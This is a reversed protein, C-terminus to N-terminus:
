GRSSPTCKRVPASTRPFEAYVSTIFNWSIMRLQDVSTRSCMGALTPWHDQRDTSSARARVVHAGSLHTTM